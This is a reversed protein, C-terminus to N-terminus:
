GYLGRVDIMLKSKPENFLLLLFVDVEFPVLLDVDFDALLLDVDLLDEELLDVDLLDVDLLDLLLLLM